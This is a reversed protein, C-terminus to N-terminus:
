VAIWGHKLVHYARDPTERWFPAGCATCPKRAAQAEAGNRRWNGIMVHEQDGAHPLVEAVVHNNTCCILQGPAITATTM